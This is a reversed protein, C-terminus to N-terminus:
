LDLYKPFIYDINITKPHFVPVAINVKAPLKRFERIKPMYGIIESDNNSKRLHELHYINNQIQSHAHRFEKLCKGNYKHKTKIDDIEKLM